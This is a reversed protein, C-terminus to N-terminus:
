IFQCFSSPLFEFVGSEVFNQGRALWVIIGILFHNLLTFVLMGALIALVSKWIELSGTPNLVDYALKAVEAVVIFSAINFSIIYWQGKYDKRYWIWYALNSILIVLMAEIVGLGVICFGYVLFNISFHWRETAGEVKIIMAISGVIVLILLEPWHNLQLYQMNWGLLFIGLLMTSFLYIKTTPSFDKM